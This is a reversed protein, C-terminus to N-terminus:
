AASRKQFVCLVLISCIVAPLVSPYTVAFGWGQKKLVEMVLTVVGGAVMSGLGGLKTVREPCVVAAVLAPSIAAGYMTYAYMQLALINPFYKIMIYGLVGLGLVCIRSVKLMKKQDANRDFYRAYLDWSTSVGISLLFSNATTVIFAAVSAVSIGVIFMPMGHQALYIFAQAPKIDPYIARSTIAAISVIIGILLTLLSWWLGGKLATDEDKAAFFRQYMNQDGMLYVFTPLFFGLVQVFSLNGFGMHGEPLRAIVASFGGANCVALPVGILLGVMIMLCSIFDTYAVSYLGGFLSTAIIVVFAIITGTEVSIGLTSQLLTGVGLFQYAVVVLYALLIIITSIFRAEAGYVKEIVEPVTQANQRRIKKSIFTLILQGIPSALSFAIAVGFGFQYGLSNAGGMVTGAGMWTAILTGVLVYVPLSRGAVAYDEQNKVRKALYVGLLSIFVLYIAVCYFAFSPGSNEM